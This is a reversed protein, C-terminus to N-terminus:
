DGCTDILWEKLYLLSCKCTGDCYRSDKKESPVWASSSSDFELFSEPIM